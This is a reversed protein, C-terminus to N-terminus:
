SGLFRGCVTKRKYDSLYEPYSSFEDAVVETAAKLKKESKCFCHKAKNRTLKRKEM